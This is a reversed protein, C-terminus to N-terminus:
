ANLARGGRALMSEAVDQGIKMVGVEVCNVIRAHRESLSRRGQEGGLELM